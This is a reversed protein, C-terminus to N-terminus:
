NIPLSNQDKLFLKFEEYFDKWHIHRFEKYRYQSLVEKVTEKVLKPGSYEGKKTDEETALESKINFRVSAELSCHGEEKFKEVLYDELKQYAYEKDKYLTIDGEEQKASTYLFNSEFIGIRKELNRKREHAFESIKTFRRMMENYFVVRQSVDKQLLAKRYGEIKALKLNSFWKDESVNKVLQYYTDYIHDVGRNKAYRTWQTIMYPSVRDLYIKILERM